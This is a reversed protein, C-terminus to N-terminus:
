RLEIAWQEAFEEESLRVLSSHLRQLLDEEATESPPCPLWTTEDTKYSKQLKSMHLPAGFLLMVFEDTDEVAFQGDRNRFVHVVEFRDSALPM